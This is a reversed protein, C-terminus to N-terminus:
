PKREAKVEPYGLVRRAEAWLGESIGHREYGSDNDEVIRRLVDVAPDVICKRVDAWLAALQDSLGQLVGEVTQPDLKDGGLIACVDEYAATVYGSKEAPSDLYLELNRRVDRAKNKLARIAAINEGYKPNRYPCQAANHHNDGMPAYQFVLVQAELESLRRRLLALLKNDEVQRMNVYQRRLDEANDM